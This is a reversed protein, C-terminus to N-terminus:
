TGRAGNLPVSGGFDFTAWVPAASVPGPPDSTCMQEFVLTALITVQWGTDIM